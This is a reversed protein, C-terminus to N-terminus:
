IQNMKRTSIVKIGLVSLQKAVKKISSNVLEKFSVMKGIVRIITVMKGSISVKVVLSDMKFCELISMGTQALSDELDM